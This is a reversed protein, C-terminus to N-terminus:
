RPRCQFDGDAAFNGHLHIMFRAAKWGIETAHCPRLQFSPGEPERPPEAFHRRVGLTDDLLRREIEEIETQDLQHKRRCAGDMAAAVRDICTQRTKKLIEYLWMQEGIVQDVKSVVIALMIAQHRMPVLYEVQGQDLDDIFIQDLRCIGAYTTKDIEGAQIKMLCFAGNVRRALFLNPAGDVRTRHPAPFAELFM